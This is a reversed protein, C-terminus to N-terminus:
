LMEVWFRAGDSAVGRPDMATPVLPENAAGSVVFKGNAASLLAYSGATTGYLWYRACPYRGNAANAVLPGAGSLSACVFMGAHSSHPSAQLGYTGDENDVLVFLISPDYLASTGVFGSPTLVGDMDPDSKNHIYIYRGTSAARLVVLVMVPPPLARSVAGGSFQWSKINLIGGTGPGTILFIIDNVGFASGVPMPCTFNHWVQWDGSNPVACRAIPAGDPGNIFGGDLPTAVRFTVALAGPAAGFDAGRVITFSGNFTFGLNLGGESCPESDLGLSAFATTVAQQLAYPDLYRLPRLWLPTATVPVLGPGTGSLWPLGVPLPYTSADDTFYLADLAINRQFGVYQGRDRALKRTHYAFLYRGSGVPFEVIGQHNNDGGTFDSCSGPPSQGCDFPPSWQLTGRFVYPGLAAPATGYCISYGGFTFSVNDQNCMYSLYYTGNKHTLWPAEFWHPLMPNLLAPPTKFTVMDENLIGCFPGGCNSCLVLSGDAPDVLVTPDDGCTLEPLPKNLIDVYPGAPASAMAVGIGSGSGSAKLGMGPWFMTFRGPPHEVVQQAWAYTAWSSNAASFAIGEDRWNMLDDTSMVVYDKMFWGVQGLIDHSTTIYLRGAHVFPAPDATFKFTDIELNASALVVLVTLALSM